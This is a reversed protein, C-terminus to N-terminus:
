NLITTVVFFLTLLATTFGLGLGFGFVFLNVWDIIVPNLRRKKTTM